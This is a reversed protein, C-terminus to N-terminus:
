SCMEQLEKFREVMVPSDIDRESLYREFLEVPSLGTRDPRARPGEDESSVVIVKVATPFMERMQDGLGPSRKARVLVRLHDEGTKGAFAKLETPTGEITRLTKGATVAIDRVQAPTKATADVVYVSRPTTDDSFDLHMPAGAYRIPAGAAFTQAKHLHGLAVYHANSPFVSPDLHYDFVTQAAREGGGFQGNILTAHGVLVNVADDRFHECLTGVIRGMRQRYEGALESAELDMLHEVKVLHRQSVWPLGVLCAKEGGLTLELPSHRVSTLAHVDTLGLLDRVAELRRDSDHNGPVVVVPGVKSLKVLTSYVLREAEPPPSTTDFLDGAVLTADVKEAEAIAAIQDLVAAHEEM